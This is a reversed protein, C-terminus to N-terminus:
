IKCIFNVHNLERKSKLAHKNLIETSVPRHGEKARAQMPISRLALATMSRVSVGLSQGLDAKATPNENQTCIDPSSGDGSVKPTGLPNTTSGIEQVWNTHLTTTAEGPGFSHESLRITCYGGIGYRSINMIDDPSLTTSPDWGRPDVFIYTGPFQQLGDYGDQEWRVAPLGKASAKQLKINKVIGRPRGLM